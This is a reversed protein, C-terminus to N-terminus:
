DVKYNQPEFSRLIEDSRDIGAQLEDKTQLREPIFKQHAPEYRQMLELQYDRSEEESANPNDEIWDMADQAYAGTVKAGVIAQKQMFQTKAMADSEAQRRNEIARQRNESLTQGIQTLRGGTPDAIQQLIRPDIAM